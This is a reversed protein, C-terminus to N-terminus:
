LPPFILYLCSTVCCSVYSLVKCFLVPCCFQIEVNHCCSTSCLSTCGQNQFTPLDHSVFHSRSVSMFQIPFLIFVIYKVERMFQVSSQLNSNIRFKMGQFMTNVLHSLSLLLSVPTYFDCQTFEIKFSACLGNQGEVVCVCACVCLLWVSSSGALDPSADERSEVLKPRLCAANGEM